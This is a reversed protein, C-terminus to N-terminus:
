IENPLRITSSDFLLYKRLRSNENSWIFLLSGVFLYIALDALVGFWDAQSTVIKSYQSSSQFQMPLDALGHLLVATWITGSFLMLSAALFGFASASVSQAITYSASQRGWLINGLHLLGFIISSVSTAIWKGHKELCGFLFGRCFFDEEIGIFLTFTFAEIITSCTNEQLRLHIFSPMTLYGVILLAVILRKPNHGFTFRKLILPCFLKIGVLTILASCSRFIISVWFSPLPLTGIPLWALGWTNVTIGGFLVVVTKIRQKSTLTM